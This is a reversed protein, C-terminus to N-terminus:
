TRAGVVRAPSGAVITMSMVNCTVVSNAGIIAGSGISVGTLVISHAGLWVDDGIRVPSNECGQSAIFSGALHRHSHDTIFCGPAILVNSGISVRSAVDFESVCGIFVYKGMALQAKDDTIKIFVNHELQSRQGVSLCWPRLIRSGAGVRM